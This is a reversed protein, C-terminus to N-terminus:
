REVIVTHWDAIARELERQDKVTWRRTRNNPLLRIRRKLGQNAEFSYTKMVYSVRGFARHLM